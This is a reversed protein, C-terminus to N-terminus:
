NAAPTGNAAAFEAILDELREKQALLEQLTPKKGPDAPAAGPRAAAMAREQAALFEQVKERNQTYWYFAAATCAVGGVFGVVHDNSM